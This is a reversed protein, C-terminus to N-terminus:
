MIEVDKSKKSVSLYYSGSLIMNYKYISSKRKTNVSQVCQFSKQSFLALSPWSALFVLINLNDHSLSNRVSDKIRGSLAFMRESPVSSASISLFKKATKALCPFKVKKYNDLYERFQLIQPNSSKM